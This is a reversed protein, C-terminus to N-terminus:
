INSSIISTGYQVHYRSRSLQLIPCSTFTQNNWTWLAQCRKRLLLWEHIVKIPESWYSIRIRLLCILTFNWNLHIFKLWINHKANGTSYMTCPFFLFLNSYHIRTANQLYISHSVTCLHFQSEYDSMEKMGNKNM